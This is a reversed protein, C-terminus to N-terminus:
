ALGAHEDILANMDREFAETACEHITVYGSAEDVADRILSEPSNEHVNLTVDSFSSFTNLFERATMSREQVTQSDLTELADLTKIADCNATHLIADDRETWIVVYRQM